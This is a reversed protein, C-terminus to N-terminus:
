YYLGYFAFAGMFALVSYIIDVIIGVTITVIIWRKAKGSATMAGTIDGLSLLKSVKCSYAIAVIGFPICCFITTLISFALYNNIPQQGHEPINNPQRETHQQIQQEMVESYLKEGCTECYSSNDNNEKGCRPCIM